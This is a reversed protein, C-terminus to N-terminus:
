RAFLEPALRRLDARLAAVAGPDLRDAPAVLRASCVGALELAAKWGAPGIGRRCATVIAFLRQQLEAARDCDGARAAAHIGAALEPVLNASAAIAGHAGFSLSAQLLTDSGTLVRFDSGRTAFCVAALYELDRSSDKIGVVQPHEALEAVLPVAFGVGTFSPIHYLVLPLETTEAITLYTRRLTDEDAPYYSPPAVLAASAGIDAYGRLEDAAGQLATLALGAIVPVRGATAQVVAGLVAHRQARSLRAGEGTSGLPSIGVVGGALVREVLRGIGDRDLNGRDDLPTALAVMVGGRLVSTASAM